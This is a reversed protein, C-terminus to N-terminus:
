AEVLAALHPQGHLHDILLGALIQFGLLLGFALLLLRDAPLLRRLRLLRREIFRPRPMVGATTKHLWAGKSTGAKLRSRELSRRNSGDRTLGPFLYKWSIRVRASRFAIGKLGGLEGSRAGTV